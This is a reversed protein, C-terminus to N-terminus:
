KKIIEVGKLYYQLIKKYDWWESAFYTAGVWSVGVGHGNRVKWVWAPDPVSQLYPINMCKKGNNKECYEQYSLTRGDSSSFYWTKIIQRNHTVVEWVTEDVYRSVNPSRMEYGYGLYRQFSDPDDSGDYLHTNYKRNKRDSYYYAYTRASVIITKIKHELDTNSVEGLWKLYDEVPLENVFLLNGWSNRVVIRNRFLNDNYKWSTDWLPKRSWSAIRVVDSQISLSSGTYVKWGISAQVMNTGLVWIEVSMGRSVPVRRAWIRVVPTRDTASELIATVGSYSLRVQFIPSRISPSPRAILDPINNLIPNVSSITPSKQILNMVEDSPIPDIFSPEPNYRLSTQIRLADRWTPILAYINKGPCATADLDKHWILSKTTHTQVTRCGEGSCQKIGIAPADLDIGYKEALYTIASELWAKQDRNLSLTEYNGIVSVGVTWENNALVHAGVVYDGGARWEYITGRQWIIYNYGIDWWGRTIAHYKYIDKLYTIDDAQKDLSEATHHIVIRNVSRTKQIPWVLRRWNEYRKVITQVATDPFMKEIDTKRQQWLEINKIQEQTKSSQRYRLYEQYAAKQLPHDSYRYSEDAWWEARSVIRAAALVDLPSVREDSPSWSSMLAIDRTDVPEPLVIRFSVSEARSVIVPTSFVRMDYGRMDLDEIDLHRVYEVDGIQWYVTAWSQILADTRPFSFYLATRPTEFDVSAELEYRGDYETPLINELYSTYVAEPNNKESYFWFFALLWILLSSFFFFFYKM